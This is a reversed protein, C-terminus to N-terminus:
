KAGRVKALMEKMEDESLDPAAPIGTKAEETIKQEWTTM